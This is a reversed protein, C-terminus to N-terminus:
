VDKLFFFHQMGEQWAKHGYQNTHKHMTHWKFDIHHKIRQSLKRQGKWVRGGELSIDYVKFSISLFIFYICRVYRPTHAWMISCLLSAMFYVLCLSSRSLLLDFRVVFLLINAHPPRLSNPLNQRLDMTNLTYAYLSHHQKNSIFEELRDWLTM